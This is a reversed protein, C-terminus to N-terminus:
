GPAAINSTDLCAVPDPDAPFGYLVHDTGYYQSNAVAPMFTIGGNFRCITKFAFNLM